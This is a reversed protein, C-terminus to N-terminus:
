ENEGPGKIKQSARQSMVRALKDAYQSGKSHGAATEGKIIDAAPIKSPKPTSAAAAVAPPAEVPTSTSPSSSPAPAGFRGQLEAPLKAQDIKPQSPTAKTKQQEKFQKFKDKVAAGGAFPKLISKMKGSILKGAMSAFSAQEELKEGPKKSANKNAAHDHDYKNIAEYLGHVGAFHLLGHDVSQSKPDLGLEKLANHAQMKILPFFEKFFAQMKSGQKPADGLIAKTDKQKAQFDDNSFKEQYWQKFEPPANELVSAADEPRADGSLNEKIWNKFKPPADALVAKFDKQQAEPEDVGYGQEKAWKIFDPNNQAWSADPDDAMAAETGGEEGKIGGAHQRGEEASVADPSINVGGRMISQAKAKKEAEHAARGEEGKKHAEHHAALFENVHDPNKAHWDKEFQRDMRRRQAAGAGKYDPSNVLEDYAKNRERHHLERAEIANGHRALLPNQLPDATVARHDDAHREWPLAEKRLELLEEKSPTRFRSPKIKEEEGIDEMVSKQHASPDEDEDYEPEGADPDHEKLFQAAPDNEDLFDYNGDNEDEDEAKSLDESKNMKQYISNVLAWYNDGESESLTKNAASKAKGWKAEDAPTKIFAPM